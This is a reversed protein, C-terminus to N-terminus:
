LRARHAPYPEFTPEFTPESTPEFTPASTPEHTPGLTGHGSSHFKAVSQDVSNRLTMTRTLSIGETQGNKTLSNGVSSLIIVAICIAIFGRDVSGYM